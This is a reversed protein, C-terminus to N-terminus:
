KILALMDPVGLVIVVLGIVIGIAIGGIVDSVFHRKIKVRTYAVGAVALAFIMSLWINQFFNMLIISYVTSRMSHLSPFSSADLRWLGKDYKQKIPRAKFYVVRILITMAYALIFGYFLQWFLATKGAALSVAMLLLAIPLGGLATTDNIIDEKLM